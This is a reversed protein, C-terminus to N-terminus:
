VASKSTIPLKKGEALVFAIFPEQGGAKTGWSKCRNLNFTGWEIRIVVNDQYGRNSLGSIQKEQEERLHPAMQRCVRTQDM